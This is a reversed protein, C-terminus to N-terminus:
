AFDGFVAFSVVEADRASANSPDVVVISAWGASLSQVTGAVLGGPNGVSLIPAYVTSASFSTSFNVRYLGQGNDTISSVGYAAAATVSTATGDFRCWAKAAGPHFHLRGPTVFNVLSSAAEMQAQTAIVVGSVASVSLTGAVAVDSAFAAGASVSLTGGARINGFDLGIAAAASATNAPDGFITYHLRNVDNFWDADTLTVGNTFTTDAM